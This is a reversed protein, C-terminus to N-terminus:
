RLMKCWSMSALEPTRTLRVPSNKLKFGGLRGHWRVSWCQASRGLCESEDPRPMPTEGMHNDKRNNDINVPHRVPM